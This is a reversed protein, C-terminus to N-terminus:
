ERGPIAGKKQWYNAQMSSSSTSPKTAEPHLRRADEGGSPSPLMRYGADNRDVVKMLQDRFVGILEARRGNYTFPVAKSRFMDFKQELEMM